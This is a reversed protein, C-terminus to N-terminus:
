WSQSCRVQIQLLVMLLQLNAMVANQIEKSQTALRAPELRATGRVKSGHELKGLTQLQWTFNESLTPVRARQSNGYHLHTPPEGPLWVTRDWPREPERRNCVFLTQTILRSGAVGRDHFIKRTKNFHQFTSYWSSPKHLMSLCALYLHVNQM